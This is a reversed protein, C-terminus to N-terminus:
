SIASVRSRMLGPLYALHARTKLRHQFEREPEARFAPLNKVTFTSKNFKIASKM